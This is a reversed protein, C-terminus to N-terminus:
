ASQDFRLVIPPPVDREVTRDAQLRVGREVAGEFLRRVLEADRPNAYEGTPVRPARATILEGDKFELLARGGHHDLAISTRLRRQLRASALPAAADVIALVRTAYDLAAQCRYSCPMFTTLAGSELLLHNLQWAPSPDSAGRAARYEEAWRDHTNERALVVRTVYAEVCCRPYGLAQGLALFSSARQEVDNVALAKAEIDRVHEAAGLTGGIYVLRLQRPTGDDDIVTASSACTALGYSAYRARIVEDDSGITSVRMAPKLGALVAHLETDLRADPDDDLALGLQQAAVRAADVEAAIASPELPRLGDPVRSLLYHAVKPTARALGHLRGAVAGLGEAIPLVVDVALGLAGARAIGRIITAPDGVAVLRAHTAEDFTAVSLRLRVRKLARLARLSEAELVGNSSGLILVDSAGADIARAAAAAPDPEVDSDVLARV